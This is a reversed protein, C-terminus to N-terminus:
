GGHERVENPHAGAVGDMGEGPQSETRLDIAIPEDNSLARNGSTREVLDIAGREPQLTPRSEFAGDFFDRLKGRMFAM